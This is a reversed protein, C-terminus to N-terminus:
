VAILCVDEADSSEHMCECFDHRNSPSKVILSGVVALSDSCHAVYFLSAHSWSKVDPPINLM